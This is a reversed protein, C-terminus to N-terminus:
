FFVLKNKFRNIDGIKIEELNMAYTDDMACSIVASFLELFMITSLITFYYFLSFRFYFWM